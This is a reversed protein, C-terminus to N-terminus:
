PRLAGIREADTVPPAALDVPSGADVAMVTISEGLGAIPGPVSEGAHVLAVKAGATSMMYEVRDAPTATDVPVYQGGAAVVAHVAVMLEVSRPICVVVAVDPGVGARILERALVNVRAGFEGYTVTREQFVLADRDAHAAVSDALASALDEARVHRDEGVEVARLASIEGADLMPVDGVAVDIDATLGDLLAVFREALTQATSEDFLDTAFVVAGHWDGTQASNVMFTLDVQAPSTDTEVGSFVLDGVPIEVSQAAAGPDLTLMVQALPAFAESRVPNVADVVTEF